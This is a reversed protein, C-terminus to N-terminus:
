RLGKVEFSPLFPRAKKFTMFIQIDIVAKSQESREAGALTFTLTTHSECVALIMARQSDRFYSMALNVGLTLVLRKYTKLM